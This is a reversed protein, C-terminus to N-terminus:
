ERFHQTFFSLNSMYVAKLSEISLRLNHKLQLFQHLGSGWESSEQEVGTENDMIIIKPYRDAASERHDIDVIYEKNPQFYKANVASQIWLKLSRKVFSYLTAHAPFTQILPENEVHQEIVMLVEKELHKERILEIENFTHLILVSDTIILSHQQDHSIIGNNVLCQFIEESEEVSIGSNATFANSAIGGFIKRQLLLLLREQEDPFGLFDHANVMSWIELYLQDSHNMDPLAHPLYLM